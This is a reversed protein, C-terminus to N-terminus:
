HITKPDIKHETKKYFSLVALGLIAASMTTLYINRFGVNLTDQFTTEIRNSREHITNLYNTEAKQFEVPTDAKFGRLDTVLTDMMSVVSQMTQIRGSVSQIVGDLGDITTIGDLLSLSSDPITALTSASVLETVPTGDFASPDLSQLETKMQLFATKTADLGEIAGTLGTKADNISSIGSDVGSQIGNVIQPVFMDFISSYFSETNNAITTVDSEQIKALVQPDLSGGSPMNSQDLSISTGNSYDPFTFNSLQDQFRPDQELTTLLSNIESSYEIPPVDLTNPLDSAINSQMQMGASALFAVMIAPAITTGISRIL